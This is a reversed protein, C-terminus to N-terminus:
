NNILKEIEKENANVLNSINYSFIYNNFKLFGRMLFYKYKKNLNEIKM